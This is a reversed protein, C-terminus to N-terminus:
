KGLFAVIAIPITTKVVATAMRGDFRVFGFKAPFSVFRFDKLYFLSKNKLIIKEGRNAYVDYKWNGNVSM